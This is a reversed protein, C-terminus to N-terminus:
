ISPGLDNTAKDSFALDFELIIWNNLEQIVDHLFM